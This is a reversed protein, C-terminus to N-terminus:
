FFSGYLLLFLLPSLLLPVLFQDLECGPLLLRGVMLKQNTGDSNKGLIDSVRPMVGLLFKIVVTNKLRLLIM